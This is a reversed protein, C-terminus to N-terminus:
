RVVEITPATGSGGPGEGEAECAGVILTGLTGKSVYYETNADTGSKPDKPITGLYNQPLLSLNVCAAQTTKGPCTTDCGSTDTGIVSYQGATLAAITPYHVGSNDAQYKVLADLINAVDTARRSNRTQAFRKGPDTAVFVGAALIAIIAIVIILEVLTFAKRLSKIRSITSM